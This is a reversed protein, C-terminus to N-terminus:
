PFMYIKKEYKKSTQKKGWYEKSYSRDISSTACYPKSNLNDAAKAFHIWKNHLTKHDTLM